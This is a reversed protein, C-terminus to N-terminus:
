LFNKIFKEKNVFLVNLLNELLIKLFIMLPADNAGM